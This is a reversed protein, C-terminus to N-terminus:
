PTREYEKPMVLHWRATPASLDKNFRSALERIVMFPLM